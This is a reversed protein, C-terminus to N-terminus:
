QNLIKELFPISEKHSIKRHEDLIMITNKLIQINEKALKVNCEKSLENILLDTKYKINPFFKIVYSKNQYEKINDILKPRLSDPIWDIRLEEPYNILNINYPWEKYYPYNNAQEEIWDLLDTLYAINLISVTINILIKVNPYHMYSKATIINSKVTNWDSPFRVYEQVKEIGDISAILEFEKYEPMIQFFKKNLNTFNSSIYIKINKSYGKEVCYELIKLVIPNITPEGGAFSLVEVHPLIKTLSIWFEESESWTFESMDPLQFEGITGEWTGPLGVNVKRLRGGYLKVGKYKKGLQNLEKEIQSSDYANCTICKLNCLNNPKLELRKVSYEAYGNNKIASNVLELISKNNIYENISRVRMSADKDRYCIDCGNVKKDNALANRINIVKKNNWFNEIPNNDTIRELKSISIKEDFYCCPLVSGNPRTSLELFPYFCFIESNIIKRRLQDIENM